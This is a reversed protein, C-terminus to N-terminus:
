AGWGKSNVGDRAHVLAKLVLPLGHVVVEEVEHAITSVQGVYRVLHPTAEWARLVGCTHAAKLQLVVHLMGVLIGHEKAKYQCLQDM